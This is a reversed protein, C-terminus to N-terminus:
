IHILSLQGDAIVEGALSDSILEAVAEETMKASNLDSYGQEAWSAYTLPQGDAGETGKKRYKRALGELSAGRTGM